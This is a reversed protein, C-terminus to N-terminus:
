GGGADEEGLALTTIRLDDESLRPAEASIGAPKESPLPAVPTSFSTGYEAIPMQVPQQTQPALNLIPTTELAPLGAPGPATYIAPKMRPSAVAEAEAATPAADLPAVTWVTEVRGSAPATEQLTYAPEPMAADAVPAGQGATTATEELTYVPQPVATEQITYVPEPAPATQPASAPPAEPSSMQIAVPDAAMGASEQIQVSATAPVIPQAGGEIGGGLSAMYADYDGVSVFGTGTVVGSDGGPAVQPSAASLPQAAAFESSPMITPKLDPLPASSSAALAPKARPELIPTTALPALQAPAAAMDVSTAGESVMPKALPMPDVAAQDVYEVIGTSASATGIEPSASVFGGDEEGIALTTIQFDGADAFSTVPPELFQVGDVFPLAIYDSVGGDEEGISLTTVGPGDGHVIFCSSGDCAPSAAGTMAQDSQFGSQVAHYKAGIETTSPTATAASRQSAASIVPDLHFSYTVNTM